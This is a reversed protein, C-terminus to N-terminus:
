LIVFIEMFQCNIMKINKIRQKTFIEKVVFFALSDRDQKYIIWCWSYKEDTAPQLVQRGRYVGTDLNLRHPRRM